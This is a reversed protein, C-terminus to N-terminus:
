TSVYAASLAYSKGPRHNSLGPRFKNGVFEDKCTIVNEMDSPM